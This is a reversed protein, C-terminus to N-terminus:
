SNIIGEKDKIINIENKGTLKIKFKEILKIKCKVYLNRKFNKSVNELKMLLIM